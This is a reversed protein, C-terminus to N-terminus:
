ETLKNKLDMREHLIRVVEIENVSISYYFIIHKGSKLGLLNKSIGNYVKGIEPNEGINECSLKLMMYYKDAQNESWNEFTYSWIDNLDDNAKQRINVKAM